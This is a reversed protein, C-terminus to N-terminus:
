VLQAKIKEEDEFSDLNIGIVSGLGGFISGTVGKEFRAAQAKLAPAPLPVYGVRAVYQTSEPALYFRAFAKIEPRAASAANVYIFLPRSLPQYTADAVTQPSPVVCGHGNDVAVLKVKDKNAKYYAYGFYGLANPDAAVGREIVMDDESTTADGRSSSQTGVIALTFYDFTGSDRGPGFLALPQAPFGARIQQWNTIKGEAAPEWMAKLEKVTLCDVFTNKANVVVSLSDFAFPVEIYEVHNAKCQESEASKIPRSAGAIDLEGACFKRFGGGTGSENIVFQVAPNAEHFAQAVAQSLPYVTSSGDVTVTGSPKRLQVGSACGCFGLRSPHIQTKSLGETAVPDQHM